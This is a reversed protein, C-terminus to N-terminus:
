RAISSHHMLWYVMLGWIGALLGALVWASAPMFLPPLQRKRMSGIDKAIGTAILIHLIVTLLLIISHFQMVSLNLANIFDM